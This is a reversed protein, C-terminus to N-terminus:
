AENLEKIFADIYEAIQEDSFNVIEPKGIQKLLVMQIQQNQAKKDLKMKEIIDNRKIGYLSLPYTNTKLWQKYSETQLNADTYRESVRLAFLMGIAVAEGHTIKGYGLEAEIAHALTHGFNLFKRINSEKEDEEVIKAKVLIGEYLYHILEDESIDSLKKTLLQELLDNNAIFAEKVIESFGSRVEETPLSQLTDIDYIVARPPYFAGIMNKGLEHNIAVKGGVSSDHALITTPMQIYDIGRMFTAAVFGALDGIVGGGLAVILSQRDLHNELAVTQLHYYQDINKSFEGSPIVAEIIQFDQLSKKVDELYLPAVVDDTIILIRSYPKTILENLQFRLSKGVYIPYDNTSTTVNMQKMNFVEFRKEIRM